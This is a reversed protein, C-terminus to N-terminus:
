TENSKEKRRSEEIYHTYKYFAVANVKIHKDSTFCKFRLPCGKCDVSIYHKCLIRQSTYYKGLETSYMLCDVIVDRSPEVVVNVKELNTKM